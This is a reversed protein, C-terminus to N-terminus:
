EAEILHEVRATSSTVVLVRFNEMGFHRRHLDQRWTEHYSLLKGYLSTRFLGRRM